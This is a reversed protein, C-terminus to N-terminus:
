GLLNTTDSEILVKIYQRSRGVRIPNSFSETRSVRKTHQVARGAVKQISVAPESDQTLAEIEFRSDRDFRDGANVTRLLM